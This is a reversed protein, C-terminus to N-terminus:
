ESLCEKDLIKRSSTTGKHRATGNEANNATRYISIRKAVRISGARIDIMIDQRSIYRASMEGSSWPAELVRHPSFSGREKIFRSGHGM